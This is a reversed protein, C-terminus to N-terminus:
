FKVSLNSKISWTNRVGNSSCLQDWNSRFDVTIIDTTNLGVGFSAWIEVLNQTNNGLSM